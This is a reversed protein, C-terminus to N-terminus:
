YLTRYLGANTCIYIYGDAFAVNNYATVGPLKYNAWTLGNNASLYIGTSSAAIIIKKAPYYVMDIDSSLTSANRSGSILNYRLNVNFNTATASVIFISGNRDAWLISDNIVECDELEKRANYMSTWNEGNDTSKVIIPGIASSSRQTCYITGNSSVSFDTPDNGPLKNNWTTNSTGSTKWIGRQFGTMSALFRGDSLSVISQSNCQFGVPGSNSFSTGNNASLYFGNDLSAVILQGQGFNSFAAGPYSTSLGDRTYTASWGTAAWSTGGNTSRQVGNKVVLFYNNVALTKVFSYCEGPYVSTWSFNSVNVERTTFTKEAGYATGASNTAFARVFYKTEANLNTCSATFSGTATTGVFKSSNITPAPATSWCIGSATIAAGGNSIISVEVTASESTVGSVVGTNLSPLIINTIQTSLENSQNTGAYAVLFYKYSSGGVTSADVYQTTTADVNAIQTKSGTGNALQRQIIYGAINSNVKPWTLVISSGSQVASFSSPTYSDKPCLPDYPNSWDFKQCASLCTIILSITLLLRIM